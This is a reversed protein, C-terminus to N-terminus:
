LSPINTIPSSSVSSSTKGGFNEIIKSAEDRTYKELSGTLVFTKGSFEELEQYNNNIYNMNINHEKLKNEIMRKSLKGNASAFQKAFLRDDVYHYEELKEIAFLIPKDQDIRSAIGIKGIVDIENDNLINIIQKQPTLFRHHTLNKFFLLRRKEM